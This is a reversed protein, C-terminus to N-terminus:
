HSCYLEICPSSEHQWPRSICYDEFSFPRIRNCHKLTASEETQCWCTTGHDEYDKGLLFSVCGVDLRNNCQIFPMQFLIYHWCQLPLKTVSNCGVDNPRKIVSLYFRTTLKWKDLPYSSVYQKSTRTFLWKDRVLPCASNRVSSYRLMRFFFTMVVSYLPLSSLAIPLVIHLMSIPCFICELYLATYM